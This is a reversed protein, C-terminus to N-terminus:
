IVYLSSIQLDRLGVGAGHIEIRQEKDLTLGKLNIYCVHIAVIHSICVETTM